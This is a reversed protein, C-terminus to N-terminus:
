AVPVTSERSTFLLGPGSMWLSLKQQVAGGGVAAASKACSTIEIECMQIRVRLPSLRPCRFLFKPNRPRWVLSVLSHFTHTPNGHRARVVAEAPRQRAAGAPPIQGIGEANGGDRCLCGHGHELDSSRLLFFVFILFPKRVTPKCRTKPSARTGSRLVLSLLSCILRGPKHKATHQHNTSLARGTGAAPGSPEQHGQSQRLVEGQM